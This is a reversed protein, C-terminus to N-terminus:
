NSKGKLKGTQLDFDISYEGNKTPVYLTLTAGADTGGFNASYVDPLQSRNDELLHKTVVKGSEDFILFDSSAEPGFYHLIFYTKNSFPINQHNIVSDPSFGGSMLKISSKTDLASNMLLIDLGPKNYASYLVVRNLPPQSGDLSIVQTVGRLFNNKEVIQYYYFIALSVACITAIALVLSLNQNESPRNTKVM